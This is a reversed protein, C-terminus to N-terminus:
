PQRGGNFDTVERQIEQRSRTVWINYEAPERTSQTFALYLIRSITGDPGTARRSDTAPALRGTKWIYIDMADVKKWPLRVPADVHQYEAPYSVSLQCTTERCEVAGFHVQPIAWAALDASSLRSRLAAEMRPAWDRDRSELAVTEVLTKVEPHHLKALPIERGSRPPAPAEGNNVSSRKFAVTLAGALASLILPLLLRGRGAL